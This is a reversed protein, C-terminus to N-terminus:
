ARTRLVDLLRRMSRAPDGALQGTRGAVSEAALARRVLPPADRLVGPVLRLKATTGTADRIRQRVEHYAVCDSTMASRHRELFRAHGSTRAARQGTLRDATDPAAYTVLVEPLVAVGGAAGCRAFLDWDECTPLDEAFTADIGGRGRAVMAFSTGGAFSCWLLEEASPDTPGRHVLPRRGAGVIRHHCSIAVLSPTARLVDLQREAKTPLWRDDDDCFGVIDASTARLGANRAAAASGTGAERVVVVRRDGAAIRDLVDATGDSSGDDVVVIELDTVTQGQVSAVAAGVQDARNRTPVVVALQPV